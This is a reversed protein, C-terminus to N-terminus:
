KKIFKFSVHEWMKEAFMDLKVGFDVFEGSYRYIVRLLFNNFILFNVINRKM